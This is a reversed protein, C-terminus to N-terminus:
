FLGSIRGTEDVDSDMGRAIDLIPQMPSSQAIEIDSPHNMRNRRITRANRGGAAIKESKDNYYGQPCDTM